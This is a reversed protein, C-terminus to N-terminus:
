SQGMEDETRADMDIIMAQLQEIRELVASNGTNRLEISANKLEDQLQVRMHRNWIDNWGALAQALPRDPRAFGAHLYLGAGLIQGLVGGMGMKELYDKLAAANDHPNDNDAMFDFVAQRLPELAADTMPLSHLANEMEMFLAPHNILLALVIREQLNNPLPKVNLIPILSQGYAKSGDRKQYNKNPYNKRNDNSSITNGFNEQIRKAISDRYDHQLGKDAILTIRTELARRFGARDEPTNLPREGATRQWMFDILPLAADLVLQMAAPGKNLILTDPDEGAPMAAFRVTQDAALHPLVRELSREAAKQGAVDGDFCLIPIHNLAWLDQRWWVSSM